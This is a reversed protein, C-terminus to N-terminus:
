CKIKFIFLLTTGIKLFKKPMNMYNRLLLFFGFSSFDSLDDSNDVIKFYKKLSLWSSKGLDRTGMKTQLRELPSTLLM